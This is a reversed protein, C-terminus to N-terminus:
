FARARGVAGGDITVITGSIYAARASALFCVLDAVERPRAARGFPLNMEDLLERWRAGDGFREHARTTLLTVMRDTEVLGPNVGLVRVGHEVSASGLARTMAMLASNAGAGAIYHAAPREGGTGIVNVIVGRGREQMRALAERMLGIYGFVKLDWARKWTADDVADIGGGPIAGANNVLIDLAGCEAALRKAAGEQSLDAVHLTVEAARASLIERKAGELDALTRGALHLRCGEAALGVAVARGIGRSGGTVLATKGVLELDM